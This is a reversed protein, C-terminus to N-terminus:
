PRSPEVQSMRADGAPEAPEITARSFQTRVRGQFFFTRGGDSVEVGEAEITGNQTSIKVAERSLVTGGKIDVSASRLLVEEGRTTTIRIPEALDLHEKATDFLASASVLSARTGVADTVLKANVDKLEILGPKRVDQFAAKATVEYPRNDQRFGTLRPNEMAIKTGSLTVSGLSLGPIDGFPKFMTAAVVLGGAALAGAPIAFKLLRVRLSHRKAKAYAAARDPGHRGDRGLGPLHGTM